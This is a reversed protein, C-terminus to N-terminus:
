CSQLSNWNICRLFKGLTANKQNGIMKASYETVPVAEVVTVSFSLNDELGDKDIVSISIDRKVPNNSSYLISVTFTFDNRNGGSLDYEGATELAEGDVKIRESPIVAGNERFRIATMDQDGKQATIKYDITTNLATTGSAESESM